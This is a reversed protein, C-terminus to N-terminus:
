GNRGPINPCQYVAMVAFLFDRDVTDYAKAIDVYITAGTLNRTAMVCPLLSTFTINDGIWRGPLFGMQNAEIACPMVCSFRTALVRALLRYLCSLLPIPRYSAATTPDPDGPKLIPTISGRSFGRPLRGLTGAATFLSALLGALCDEGVRWLTYPIGDLGAASHPAAAALAAAVEAASITAAGAAAAAAPEMRRIEGRETAATLARLIQARAHADTARPGSIHAYHHAFANAIAPNTSHREGAPTTLTRVMM